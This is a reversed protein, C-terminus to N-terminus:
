DLSAGRRRGSSGNGMCRHHKPPPHGRASSATSAARLQPASQASAHDMRQAQTAHPNRQMRRSVDPRFSFAERASSGESDSALSNLVSSDTVGWLDDDWPQALPSRHSHRPSHHPNSDRSRHSVSVQHQARSGRRPSSPSSHVPGVELAWLPSTAEKVQEQMLAIAAMIDLPKYGLGGMERLAMEHTHTRRRCREVYKGLEEV